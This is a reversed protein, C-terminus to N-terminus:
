NAMEVKSCFALNFISEITTSSLIRCSCCEVKGFNLIAFMCKNEFENVHIPKASTQVSSKLLDPTLAAVNARAGAGAQTAVGTKSASAISKRKTVRVAKKYALTFRQINKSSPKPVSYMMRPTLKLTQTGESLMCVIRTCAGANGNKLVRYAHVVIEITGDANMFSMQRDEMGDDNLTKKSEGRAWQNAPICEKLILELLRNPSALLEDASYGLYRAAEKLAVYPQRGAFGTSISEDFGDIGLKSMHRQFTDCSIGKLSCLMKANDAIRIEEIAKVKEDGYRAKASEKEAALGDVIGSGNEGLGARAALQNLAAMVRGQLIPDTLAIDGRAFSEYLPYTKPRGAISFQVQVGGRTLRYITGFAGSSTKVTRGAVVKNLANADPKSLRMSRAM